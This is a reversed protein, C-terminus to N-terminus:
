RPAWIPGVRGWWKSFGVKQTHMCKLNAPRVLICSAVEVGDGVGEGVEGGWPPALVSLEGDMPEFKGQKIQFGSTCCAMKSAHALAGTGSTAPQVDPKWTMCAFSSGISSSSETSAQGPIEHGFATAMDAQTLLALTAAFAVGETKSVCASKAVDKPSM